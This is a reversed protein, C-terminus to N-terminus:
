SLAIKIPINSRSPCVYMRIIWIIFISMAIATTMVTEAVSNRIIWYHWRSDLGMKISLGLPTITMEEVVSKNDIM